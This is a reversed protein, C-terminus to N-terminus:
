PLRVTPAASKPTAAGTVRYGNPQDLDSLEVNGKFRAGVLGLGVEEVAVLHDDREWELSEYSPVCLALVPPDNLM